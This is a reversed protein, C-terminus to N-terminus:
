SVKARSTISCRRWSRWNEALELKKDKIASKLPLSYDADPCTYAAMSMVQVSGLEVQAPPERTLGWRFAEKNPGLVLRRLEALDDPSMGARTSRLIADEFWNTGGAAEMEIGSVQMTEMMVAVRRVGITEPPMAPVEVPAHETISAGGGSAAATGRLKKM